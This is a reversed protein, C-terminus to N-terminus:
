CHAVSGVLAALYTATVHGMETQECLVKTHIPRYKNRLDLLPNM